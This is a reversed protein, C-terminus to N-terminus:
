RSKSRQISESLVDLFDYLRTGSCEHWNGLPQVSDMAMAAIVKSFPTYGGQRQFVPKEDEEPAKPFIVPYRGIIYERICRYAYVIAARKGPSISDTVEAIKPLLLPDFERGSWCYLSAVLQKAYLADRGKSYKYYLADAVSFQRITCDSLRVMPTRLGDWIDPFTYLDRDTLLFKGLPLLEALPVEGLLQRVRRQHAKSPTGMLLVVLMEKYRAEFDRGEEEMRLCIEEKQWETLEVYSEACHIAIRGM